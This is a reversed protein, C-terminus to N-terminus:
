VEIDHIRGVVGGGAPFLEKGMVELLHFQYHGPPYVVLKRNWFWVDIWGSLSLLAVIIM